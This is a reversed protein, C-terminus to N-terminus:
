SREKVVIKLNATQELGIIKATSEGFRKIVKLQFEVGLRKSTIYIYTHMHLEDIYKMYQLVNTLIKM